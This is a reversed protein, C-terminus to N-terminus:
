NKRLDINFIINQEAGWHLPKSADIKCSSSAPPAVCTNIPYNPDQYYRGCFTQPYGTIFNFGASGDPSGASILAMNNGSQAPTILISTNRNKPFCHGKCGTCTDANYAISGQFLGETQQYCIDVDCGNSVTLRVSYLLSKPADPAAWVLGLWAFGLFGACITLM